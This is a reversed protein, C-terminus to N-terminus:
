SFADLKAPAIKANPVAGVWRLDGTDRNFVAHCMIRGFISLAVAADDPPATHDACRSKSFDISAVHVNHSMQELTNVTENILDRANKTPACYEPGITKPCAPGDIEVLLYNRAARYKMVRVFADTVMKGASFSDGMAAGLTPLDSTGIWIIALDLTENTAVRNGYWSPSTSVDIGDIANSFNVADGVVPTTPLLASGAIECNRVDATIGVETLLQLLIAPYPRQRPGGCSSDGVCAIKFAPSTEPWWLPRFRLHPNAPNLHSTLATGEPFNNRLMEVPYGLAELKEKSIQAGQNHEAWPCVQCFRGDRSWSRGTGTPKLKQLETLTLSGFLGDIRNNFHEFGVQGAPREAREPREPRDPGWAYHADVAFSCTVSRPFEDRGGLRVNEAFSLIPKESTYRMPEGNESRIWHGTDIHPLLWEGYLRPITTTGKEDRVSFEVVHYVPNQQASVSVFVAKLSADLIALPNARFGRLEYRGASTTLTMCTTGVHFNNLPIVTQAYSHALTFAGVTVSAGTMIQAETFTFDIRANGTIAGKIGVVYM